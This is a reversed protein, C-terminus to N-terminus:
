YLTAVFWLNPDTATLKVTNLDFKTTGASITYKTSMADLMTKLAPIVSLVKEGGSTEPGSYQLTVGDADVTKNYIYNLQTNSGTSTRYSLRVQVTTDTLPRLQFSNVTYKIAKFASTVNNYLSAYSDSMSSVGNWQWRRVSTADIISSFFKLPDNGDIYYAANTTSQFFDKDAIYKYEQVKSGDGAIKSDRFRLYYDTGRKTVLFPNFSEHLVADSDIPYINPIGDNAGEMKYLSDGYHVIDYTPSNTPFMKSQFAKVDALYESYDVGKEIPTLLNYTGRKKGKLMMYSADEPADVIVFEYDGGIGTGTEDNPSDSTGTSPVDEPDSFIHMVKNYSNFTLVPGNDTTIEWASRDESYQNSTLSNNMAVKVSHDADFDMLVLYGNGYPVQNKTTPYLQMAWGNPQAELRSSYLASAANLREAASQDFLNDEENVCSALTLAAGLFLSISFIKNM